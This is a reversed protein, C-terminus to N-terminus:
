SSKGNATVFMAEFVRGAAAVLQHPRLHPPLLGLPTFLSEPFNKSFYKPKQEYSQWSTNGDSSETWSTRFFSLFEIINIWYRSLKYLEVEIRTVEEKRNKREEKEGDM